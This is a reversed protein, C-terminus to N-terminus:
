WAMIGTLYETGRWGLHSQIIFGGITSALLLGTFLTM